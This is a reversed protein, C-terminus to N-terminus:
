TGVCDLGPWNRVRREAIIADCRYWESASQVSVGVERAVEAPRRERRFLEAARMRREELAQFDRRPRVRDSKEVAASRKEKRVEGGSSGAM